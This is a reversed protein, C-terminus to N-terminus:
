RRNSNARGFSSTIPWTLPAVQPGNGHRIVLDHGNALPALAQAVARPHSMETVIVDNM